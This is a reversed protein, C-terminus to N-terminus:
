PFSINSYKDGLSMFLKEFQKGYPLDKGRVEAAKSYMEAAKEDCELSSMKPEEEKKKDKAKKREGIIRLLEELGYFDAEM